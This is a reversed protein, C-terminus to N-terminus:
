GLGISGRNTIRRRKFQNKWRRMLYATQAGSSGQFVHIEDMLIAIPPTEPYVALTKTYRKDGLLRNLMETNLMLLDPPEAMMREGFTLVVPTKDLVICKCSKCYLQEEKNRCDEKKWLLESGCTKLKNTRRDLVPKPCRFYPCVYGSPKDEWGAGRKGQKTQTKCRQCAHRWVFCWSDHKAQWKARASSQGM